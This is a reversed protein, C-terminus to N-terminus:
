HMACAPEALLEVHPQVLFSAGVQQFGLAKYFNHAIVRKLNSSLVLKYCDNEAAVQLASNMMFKGVGKGQTKPAVMVDEVIAFSKDQHLLSPTILIAFTGVIQEESLAIYIAYNPYAMMKNYMALAKESSLLKDDMDPQAYLSLIMPLDKASAARLVLNTSLPRFSLSSKDREKKQELDMVFCKGHPAFHVSENSLLSASLQENPLCLKYCQSKSCQQISFDMIKQEIEQRQGDVSFVVDDLVGAPAGEHALNDMILLSFAALCQKDDTLVFLTYEPYLRMKAFLNKAKEMSLAQNERAYLDM